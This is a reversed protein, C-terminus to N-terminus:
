SDIPAPPGGFAGAFGYAAIAASAVVWLALFIRVPEELVDGLNGRMINDGQAALLLLAGPVIILLWAGFGRLRSTLWATLCLLAGVFLLLMGLAVLTRGHGQGISKLMEVLPVTDHQPVLFVALGALAAVTALVRALISERRHARLVLAMPGVLVFASLAIWRWDPNGLKEGLSFVLSGFLLTGAILGFVGRVARGTPAFAFILSLVTALYLAVIPLADAAGHADALEQWSFRLSGGAQWPAVVTVLLLVGFIQLIRRVRAGLQDFATDQRVVPPVGQAIQQVPTGPPPTVPIAVPQIEMRPQPAPQQYPAQGPAPQFGPFVPPQQLAQGSLGPMPAPTTQAFAAPQSSNARPPVAPQPVGAAPHGPPLQGPEIMLTSAMPSAAPPQAPPPGAGVGKLLDATPAMYGMITKAPPPGGSPSPAGLPPPTSV